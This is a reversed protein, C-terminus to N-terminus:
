ATNEGQKRHQKPERNLPVVLYLTLTSDDVLLPRVGPRVRGAAIDDAGTQLRVDFPDDDGVGLHREHLAPGLEVDGCQDLLQPLAAVLDLLDRDRKAALRFGLQQRLGRGPPHDVQRRAM